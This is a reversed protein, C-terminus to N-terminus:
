AMFLKSIKKLVRIKHMVFLFAFTVSCYLVASLVMKAYISFSEILLGSVVIIMYLALPVILQHVAYRIYDLKLYKCNLFLQYNVTSFQIILNKIILGVAGMQLYVILFLSIPIGLLMFFVSTNRYQKTNDTAFFVSGSLQGYTQHIPIFANLALMHGANSFEKGAVISVISMSHYCIYVAIFTSLMYFKPIYKRFIIRIKLISKDKYNKSFERTILPTMSMTLLSSITAIQFVLGYYGQEKFGGYRQLIWYDFATISASITMYIFLPHTYAYFEKTFKKFQASDLAFDIETIRCIAYILFSNYFITTVILYIFFLSLSILNFYTIVILLVFSIIAQSIKITESIFTFAYADMTKVLVTTFWILFSLVLAEVIYILKVNHFLVKSLDLWLILLFLSTVFVVMIVILLIYYAIIKKNNNDQSLKIYYATSTGGDLLGFFQGMISSLYNYIGFNEPGIKAPIIFIILSKIVANVGTALLKIIYRSNLSVPLRM